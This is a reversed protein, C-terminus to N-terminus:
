LEMPVGLEVHEVGWVQTLKGGINKMETPLM